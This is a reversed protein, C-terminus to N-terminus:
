NKFNFEYRDSGTGALDIVATLKIVFYSISTTTELKYLILDGTKLGTIKDVQQGAEFANKISQTTANVYDFGNDRRFKGGAMSIWKHSLTDSTNNLTDDVLFLESKDAILSFEPTADKLNYGDQLSAAELHTYFINGTKEIASRNKKINLIRKTTVLSEGDEQIGKFSLYILTTDEKLNQVQYLYENKYNKGSLAITSLTDTILSNVERQYIVLNSLNQNSKVEVSFAVIDNPSRVLQFDEPTVTVFLQNVEEKKCSFFAFSVFLALLINKMTKCNVAKFYFFRFRLNLNKIM